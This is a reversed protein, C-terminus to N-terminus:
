RSLTVAFSRSNTDQCLGQLAQGLYGSNADNRIQIYCKLRSAFAFLDGTLAFRRQCLPDVSNRCQEVQVFLRQSDAVEPFRVDVYAGGPIFRAQGSARRAGSNASLELVSFPSLDPTDTLHAAPAVTLNPPTDPASACSTLLLTSLLALCVLAHRVDNCIDIAM